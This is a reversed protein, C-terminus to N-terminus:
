EITNLKEPKSTLCSHAPPVSFVATLRQDPSPAEKWLHQIQGTALGWHRFMWGDGANPWNCAAEKQTLSVRSGLHGGQRQSTAVPVTVAQVAAFLGVGECDKLSDRAPGAEGSM